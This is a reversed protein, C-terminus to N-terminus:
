QLEEVNEDTLSGMRNPAERGLTLWTSEKRKGSTFAVLIRNPDIPKKTMKEELKDLSVTPTQPYQKQNVLTELLKDLTDIQSMLIHKPLHCHTMAEGMIATYGGSPALYQVIPQFGADTKFPTRSVILPVVTPFLEWSKFHPEDFGKIEAVQSCKRCSFSFYKFPLGEKDVYVSIDEENVQMPGKIYLVNGYVKKSGCHPCKATWYDLLGTEFLCTDWFLKDIATITHGVKGSASHLAPPAVIENWAKTDMVLYLGKYVAVYDPVRKIKDYFDPSSMPIEFQYFFEFDNDHLIKSVSLEFKEWDYL